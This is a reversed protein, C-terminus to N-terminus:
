RAPPPPRRDRARRRRPPSGRRGGPRLPACTAACSSTRSPPARHRDARGGSRGPIPSSTEVIREHGAVDEPAQELRHRHEEADGHEGEGDHVHHGAVGHTEDRPGIRRLGHHRPHADLQAQLPGQVDLVEGEEAAREPSVEAARQARARGHDVLDERAKGGGELRSPSTPRCPTAAPRALPPGGPPTTPLAPRWSPSPGTPVTPPSGYPTRRPPATPGWVMKAQGPTPRRAMVAM